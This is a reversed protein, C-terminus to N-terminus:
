RKDSNEVTKRLENLSRMKFNNLDTKIMEIFIRHITPYNGNILKDFNRGYSLPLYEIFDEKWNSSGMLDYLGTRGNYKIFLTKDRVSYLNKVIPCEVARYENTKVYQTLYLECETVLHKEAERQQKENM